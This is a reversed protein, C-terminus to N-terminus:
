CRGADNLDLGFVADLGTLVFVKAVAPTIGRLTLRKGVSEAHKRLQIISGLGTSDLFTVLAFDVTLAEIRPDAIALSGVELLEGANSVDIEGSLWQVARDGDAVLEMAGAGPPVVLEPGLAPDGDLTDRLRTVDSDHTAPVGDSDSGPHM